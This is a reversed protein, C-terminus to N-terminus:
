SGPELPRAAGMRRLWAFHSRVASLFTPNTRYRVGHERCTAEVIPSLAPYHVHCVRPLLHHVAQYNLGGFYWTLFRRGHAFDVSTNLQHVAWETEAEPPTPVEPFDAEQVCHACQFVVAMTLGAVLQAWVHFLLGIWLGHVLMPVVVMWAIAAAKGTVLVLWEKGRPRAMHHNGISGSAVNRFDDFWLWKLGLLAYLPWVYLHQFRQIPRWRQGPAFRAAGGTDIDDDVDALNPYTHHIVNHKTRWVFSSAGVLDMLRGLLRNVGPRSSYAGHNADHQVCFGIGAVGLAVLTGYLLAEWWAGGGLLFLAWSGWTFLVLVATKLWMRWGGFPSRGQEEFYRAVRAKLDGYLPAESKFRIRPDRM